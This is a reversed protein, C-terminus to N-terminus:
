PEPPGFQEGWWNRSVSQTAVLEASPNYIEAKVEYSVIWSGSTKNVRTFFTTHVYDTDTTPLPAITGLAGIQDWETWPEGGMQWREFVKAYYGVSAVDARLTITVDASGLAPVALAVNEWVPDVGSSLTVTLDRLETQTNADIDALPDSYLTIRYVGIGSSLGANGSDDQGGVDVAASWHDIEREWTAGGDIREVRLSITDADGDIKITTTGPLVIPETAFDPKRNRDFGPSAITKSEGSAYTIVFDLFAQRYTDLEVEHEYEGAGMVAGTVVSTDGLRRLVSQPTSWPGTGIRTRARVTQVTMGRDQLRIWFIGKTATEAYAADDVPEQAPPAGIDSDRADGWQYLGDERVHYPRARIYEVHGEPPVDFTVDFYRGGSGDDQFDTIVQLGISNSEAYEYPDDPTEDGQEFQAHTIWVQDVNPGVYAVHAERMQEAFDLRYRRPQTICTRQAGREDELQAVTGHLYFDRAGYFVGVDLTTGVFPSLTAAERFLRAIRAVVPPMAIVTRGDPRRHLALRQCDLAAQRALAEVGAYDGRGDFPLGCYFGAPAVTGNGGPHELSMFQPGDETRLIGGVKFEAGFLEHAARARETVLQPTVDGADQLAGLLALASAGDGVAAVFGGTVALLKPAGEFSYYDPLRTWRRESAIVSLGPVSVAFVM